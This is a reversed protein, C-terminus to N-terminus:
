SSNLEDYEADGGGGGEVVEEEEEGGMKRAATTGRGMKRPRGSSHGTVWRVRKLRRKGEVVVEERGWIARLKAMVSEPLAASQYSSATSGREM